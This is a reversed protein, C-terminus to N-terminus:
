SHLEAAIQRGRLVCDDSWFYKWQAFRGAMYLTDAKGSPPSSASWDTTAGLDDDRRRLGHRELWSWIRHLADRRDHDFIVNAYRCYRVRQRVSAQIAPDGDVLGMEVLEALVQRALPGDPMPRERRRGFYVEVQIGTRGPPANGPTLRETFHIRTSLKDEDYVYLWNEPRRTPHPAMTDVLLLQSCELARAAEQVDPPVHRCRQIFDPLPMTNVLSSFAVSEGSALHVRRDVLDIAAVEAECRLDVADIMGVSFTRYGGFRPYRVTKIYHLSSDLPGRSGRVVDAVHPSLVREGVWDTTLDAADCTWYKRTYVAPFNEAFVPGFARDLWERYNAPASLNAEATARTELFSQLCRQRLPEPVAHLATQAPHEIWHGRYYNGVRVPYEDFEGRSGEAFLAKVAAHQTFSVHPGQDFTYGDELVSSAHGGPSAERELLLSRGRGLHYATSLGAMGAGLVLIM